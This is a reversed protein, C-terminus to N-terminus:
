APGSPSVGSLRPVHGVDGEVSPRTRGRHRRRRSRSRRRRLRRRCPRRPCPGAASARSTAPTWQPTNRRREFQGLETQQQLYGLSAVEAAMEAALHEPVGAAIAKTVASQAQGIDVMAEHTRGATLHASARRKAQQVQQYVLETRVTPNPVRGAAQDGPVVNVHM